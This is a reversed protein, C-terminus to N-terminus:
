LLLNVWYNIEASFISTKDLKNYHFTGDNSYLFIGAFCHTILGLKLAKVCSMVTTADYMPPLRYCCIFLIKDMWYMVFIFVFGIPYMIPMGSSFTLVIFICAMITSYRKDFELEPGM